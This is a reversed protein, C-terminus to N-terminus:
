EPKVYKWTVTDNEELKLQDAAVQGAQSNVFYIWAMEGTSELGNISKVFIGFDYKQTELPLNEKEAIEKLIDFATKEGEFQYDYSVRKDQYELVLTATKQAQEQTPPSPEPARNKTKQTVVFSIGVFALLLFLLSFTLLRIKKTM